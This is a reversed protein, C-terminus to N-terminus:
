LQLCDPLSPFSFFLLLSKNAAKDAATASLKAQDQKKSVSDSKVIVVPATVKATDGTVTENKSIQSAAPNGKLDFVYEVETPPLCQKDDCCMFELVGKVTFDSKSLIKIKQKFVAEHEFYRLIENEFQPDREAIPKQEIVKGVLDFNKSKTFQFSTSIPGDPPPPNYQSYLHWGRDAKAILLLTAEDPKTQEVKFTWKIPDLIQSFTFLPILIFGM